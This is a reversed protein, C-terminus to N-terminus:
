VGALMLCPDGLPYASRQSLQSFGQLLAEIGSSLAMSGWEQWVSCTTKEDDVFWLTKLQGKLLYVSTLSANAALLEELKVAQEPKLNDENPLLLWRSGKIVKRAAKDDRLRNAQDIRVQDKM